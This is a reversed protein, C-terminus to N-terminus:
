EFSIAEVPCEEACTGCDLCDEERTVVAKEEVMEFVYGPCLNLCNGCGECLKTNIKPPM